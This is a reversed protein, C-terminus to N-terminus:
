KKVSDYYIRHEAQQRICSPKLQQEIASEKDKKDRKVEAIITIKKDQLNNYIVLVVRIHTRGSNGVDCVNAEFDFIKKKKGLFREQM